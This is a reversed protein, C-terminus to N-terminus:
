LGPNVVPAAALLRAPTFRGSRELATRDGLGTLNATIGFLYRPLGRSTGEPDKAEGALWDEIEGLDEQTVPRILVRVTVYYTGEPELATVLSIPLRRVAFLAARLSDLSSVSRTRADTAGSRIRFSKRWSNFVVKHESRLAVVLKDFWFARRKWLGVEYTITAPMGLLLTEELRPTFPRDVHYSVAIAGAAAEVPDVALGLDNAGSGARPALLPAAAVLLFLAARLTSRFSL